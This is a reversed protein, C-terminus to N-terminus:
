QEVPRKQRCRRHLQVAVVPLLVVPQLIVAVMAKIRETGLIAGISILEFREVM